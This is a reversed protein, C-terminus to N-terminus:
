PGVHLQEIQGPLHRDHGPRAAADAPGNGLRKGFGAAADHNRGAVEPRALLDRRRDPGLPALRDRHRHADGVLGLELVQDGHGAFSPAANVNQDAIGRDIRM